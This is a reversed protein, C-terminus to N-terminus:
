QSTVGGRPPKERPMDGGLINSRENNHFSNQIEIGSIGLYRVIHAQLVPRTVAQGPITACIKAIKIKLLFQTKQAHRHETELVM